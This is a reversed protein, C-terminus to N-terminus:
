DGPAAVQEPGAEQWRRPRARRGLVVLLLLALGTVVAAMIGVDPASRWTVWLTADTV